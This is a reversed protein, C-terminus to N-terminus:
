IKAAIFRTSNEEIITEAFSATYRNNGRVNRLPYNELKWSIWSYECWGEM